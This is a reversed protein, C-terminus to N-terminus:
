GNRTVEMRTPLIITAKCPTTIGQRDTECWVDAEIYHEKNEIRKGTVKGKVSMTDGYLNMKRMEIRFKKLWGESGIWNTLLRGAAATLFGTNVFIDPVGQAQAFDRDHHVPYYDQTGSVQMFFRTIDLKLTYGTPIEQGVEVDEWYIQRTEM